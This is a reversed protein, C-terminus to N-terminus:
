LNKCSYSYGFADQYVIEGYGMFLDIGKRDGSLAEVLNPYDAYETALLGYCRDLKELDSKALTTEFQGSMYNRISEKEIKSIREKEINRNKESFIVSSNSLTMYLEFDSQTKLAQLLAQDRHSYDKKALDISASIASALSYTPEFSRITALSDETPKKRYDNYATVIKIADDMKIQTKHYSNACLGIILISPFVALIIKSIKKM